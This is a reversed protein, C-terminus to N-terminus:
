ADGTRQAPATPRTFRGVSATGAGRRESRGHTMAASASAARLMRAYRRVLEAQADTTVAPM